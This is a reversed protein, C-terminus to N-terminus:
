HPRGPADEIQSHTSLPCDKSSSEFMMDLLIKSDIQKNDGKMSM